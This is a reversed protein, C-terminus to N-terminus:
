REAGLESVAEVGDDKESRKRAGRDVPHDVLEQAFKAGLEFVSFDRELERWNRAVPEGLLAVARLEASARHSAEDVLLELLGQRVRQEKAAQLAAADRFDVDVRGGVFQEDPEFAHRDGVSLFLM